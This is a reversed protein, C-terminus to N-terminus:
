LKTDPDMRMLTIKGAESGYEFGTNSGSGTDSRSYQLKQSNYFISFFQLMKKKKPPPTASISFRKGKKPLIPIM